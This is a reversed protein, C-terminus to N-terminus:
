GELKSVADDQLMLQSSTSNCAQDDGAERAASADFCTSCLHCLMHVKSDHRVRTNRFATMWKTPLSSSLPLFIFFIIFPPHPLSRKASLAMLHDSASSCGGDTASSCLSHQFSALLGTLCKSERSNFRVHKLLSKTAPEPHWKRNFSALLLCSKETKFLLFCSQSLFYLTFNRRSLFTMKLPFTLDYRVSRVSKLFGTCRSYAVGCDEPKAPIDRVPEETARSDLERYRWVANRLFQLLRLGTSCTGTFLAKGWTLGAPLPWMSTLTMWFSFWCWVSLLIEWEHSWLSTLSSCQKVNM